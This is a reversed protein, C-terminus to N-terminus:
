GKEKTTTEEKKAFAGLITSTINQMIYAICLIAILMKTM